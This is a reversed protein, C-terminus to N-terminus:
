GANKPRLVGGHKEITEHGFQHTRTECITKDLDKGPGLDSVADEGLQGTEPASFPRNRLKFSHIGLRGFVQHTPTQFGM